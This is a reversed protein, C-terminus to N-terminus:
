VAIFKNFDKHTKDIIELAKNKDLFDGVKVQKKYNKFWNKILLLKNKSIDVLSNIKNFNIDNNCIVIIKWDSEDNDIMELVGLVKVKILQGHKLQINSIDVIDLPDNDGYYGNLKDIQNPNEWTQPIFGYNFPIPGYTFYRLNDNKIDQKIINYKNNKIMELKERTWKPIEIIANFTQDKNKYKIDKWPSIKNNNKYYQIEFQKTGFNNIYKTTIM